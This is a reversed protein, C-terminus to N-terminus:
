DHFQEPFHFTVQTTATWATLLTIMIRHRVKGAKYRRHIASVAPGSGPIQKKFEVVSLWWYSQFLALLFLMHTSYLVGEAELVSGPGFIHAEMRTIMLLERIAWVLYLLLMALDKQM